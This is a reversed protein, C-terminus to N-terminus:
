VVDEETQRESDSISAGWPSRVFCFTMDIRAYFGLGSLPSIGRRLWSVYGRGEKQIVMRTQSLRTREEGDLPVM